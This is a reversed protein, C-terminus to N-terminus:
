FFGSSQFQGVSAKPIIKVRGLEYWSYKTGNLANYVDDLSLNEFYDVKKEFNGGQNQFSPKSFNQHNGGGNRKWGNRNDNNHNRNDNRNRDFGNSGGGRGRRAQQWGSGGGRRPYQFRNNGQNEM